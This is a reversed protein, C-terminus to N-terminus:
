LSVLVKRFIQSPAYNASSKSKESGTLAFTLIHEHKNHKCVSQFHYSRQLYTDIKALQKFRQDKRLLM